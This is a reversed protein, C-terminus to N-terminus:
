LISLKVTMIHNVPLRAPKTNGFWWVVFSALKIDDFM